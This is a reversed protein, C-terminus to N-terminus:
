EKWPDAKSILQYVKRRTVRLAGQMYSGFQDDFESGIFYVGNEDRDFSENFEDGSDEVAKWVGMKTTPQYAAVIYPNYTFTRSYTIVQELHPSNIDGKLYMDAVVKKLFALRQKASPMNKVWDDYKNVYSVFALIGCQESEPTIDTM